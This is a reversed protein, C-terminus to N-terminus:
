TSLLEEYMQQITNRTMFNLTGDAYLGLLRQFATVAKMTEEGFFGDATVTPISSYFRSITQLQQQVSLISEGSSEQKRYLDFLDEKSIMDQKIQKFLQFLTQWVIHDVIGNVPLDFIKQFTCIANQTDQDFTGNQIISPIAPDFSSLTYLAKQLLLIAEGHDHYQLPKGPYAPFDQFSTPDISSYIWCIQNWTKAQVIGTPSLLYRSQFDQVAEKTQEDYCASFPIHIEHNQHKAIIYLYEQLLLVMQSCSGVHLNQDESNDIVFFEKQLEDVIDCITQFLNRNKEFLLSDTTETVDFDYGQNRYTKNNLLNRVTMIQAWIMSKLHAQSWTPYCQSCATNKLYYVFPVSLDQATQDPKGLHITIHSPVHLKTLPGTDYTQLKPPTLASRHHKLWQHHTKILHQIEKHTNTEDPLLPIMWVDLISYEGAFMQIGQIRSTAFGQKRIEAHYVEYPCRATESPDPAYLPIKM